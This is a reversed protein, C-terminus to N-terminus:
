SAVNIQQGGNAAINVQIPIRRSLKRVRALSEAARTFRRQAMSLRKDWYAGLTLTISQRMILTHRYELATLNLWCLAVQQILLRELLPADAYGMETRLDEMRLKWCERLGSGTVSELAAHEALEGMGLISKWLEMEKHHNLLKAIAEVESPKPNEKNTTILLSRFREVIKDVDSVGAKKGIAKMSEAKEM